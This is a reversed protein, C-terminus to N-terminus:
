RDTARLEWELFVTYDVVAPTRVKLPVAGPVMEDFYNPNTLSLLTREYGLLTGSAPDVIITDRVPGTMADFDLSFAEGTRGGRDRARGTYAIGPLDALVRLVQARVGAPWTRM